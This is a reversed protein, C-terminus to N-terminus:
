CEEMCDKHFYYLKTYGDLEGEVVMANTTPDDHIYDRCFDCNPEKIVWAPVSVQRKVKIAKPTYSVDIEQVTINM